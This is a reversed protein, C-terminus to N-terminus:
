SKKANGKALGIDKDPDDQHREDQIQYKAWRTQIAALAASIEGYTLEHKGVIEAIAKAIEAEAQATISDRPHQRM